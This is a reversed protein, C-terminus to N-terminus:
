SMPRTTQLINSMIELGLESSIINILLKNKSKSKFLEMMTTSDDVLESNM